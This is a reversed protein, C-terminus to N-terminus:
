SLDSLRPKMPQTRTAGARDEKGGRVAKIMYAAVRDALAKVADIDGPQLGPPWAGVLTQYFLYEVNRDPVTAGDIEARRSRNFRLWRSVFQGWQRPMESLMALRIRADEGRKTDHTATASM